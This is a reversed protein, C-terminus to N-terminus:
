RKLINTIKAPRTGRLKDFTQNEGNKFDKHCTSNSVYGKALMKWQYGTRFCIM